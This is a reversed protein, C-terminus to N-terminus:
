GHPGRVRLAVRYRRLHRREAAFEAAVMDTRAIVAPQVESEGGPKAQQHDGRAPCPQLVYTREFPQSDRHGTKVGIQDLVKAMTARHMVRHTAEPQDILTVGALMVAEEAVVQHGEIAAPIELRDQEGRHQDHEIQERKCHRCPEQQRPQERVVHRQQEHDGGDGIKEVILQQMEGIM